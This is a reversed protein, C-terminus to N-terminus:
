FESQAKSIDRAIQERLEELSPFKREDRLKKVFILELPKGTTETPVTSGSHWLQAAVLLKPNHWASQQM